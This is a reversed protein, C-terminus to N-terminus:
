GQRSELDLLEEEASKAEQSLSKKTRSAQSRFHDHITYVGNVGGHCILDWRNIVQYQECFRVGVLLFVLECTIIAYRLAIIDPSYLCRGGM